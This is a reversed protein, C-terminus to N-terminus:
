LVVYTVFSIAHSLIDIFSHILQNGPTIKIKKFKGKNFEGVEGISNANVTRADPLFPVKVDLAELRHWDISSFYPHQKIEHAGGAGLRKSADVIFLKQLLDRAELSFKDPPYDVEIRLNALAGEKIANEEMLRKQGFPCWDDGKKGCKCRPRRGALMEYLFVGFSWFDSAKYTGTKMVIEPAWYGATGALHKLVKNKRLKITLGLDSIKVHGNTELLINNPKLDRYVIDFSHIHELGLLVEAAYFRSRENSFARDKGVTQNSKLHFKLDGGSCMDFILYLTDENHFSYKLNLVFPSHMKSLVKKENNVMWESQNMKVQKKGMEKMAFIAHTDIKQVASVAGFAGRGLVRFIRFDKLKVPQRCYAECRVYKKYLDHAMFLPLKDKLRDGLSDMILDFLTPPCVPLEMQKLTAEIVEVPWGRALEKVPGGTSTGNLVAPNTTVFTMTGSAGTTLTMPPSSAGNNSSASSGHIIIQAPVPATAATAAAASSPPITTGAAFVSPPAPPSAMPALVPTSGGFLPDSGVPTGPGSGGPTQTAGHGHAPPTGGNSNNNSDGSMLLVRAGPKAAPSDAGSSGVLAGAGTSSPPIAIPASGVAAPSAPTDATGVLAGPLLVDNEKTEKTSTTPVDSVILRARAAAAEREKEEVNDKNDAAAAATAGTPTAPIRARSSASTASTLEGARPKDKVEKEDLDTNLLIGSPRRLSIVPDGVGDGSGGITAATITTSGDKKEEKAEAQVRPTGGSPPAAVVIHASRVKIARAAAMANVDIDLHEMLVRVACRKRESAAIRRYDDVSACLALVNDSNKDGVKLWQKFLYYGVTGGRLLRRVSLKERVQLVDVM